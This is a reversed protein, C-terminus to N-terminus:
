SSNSFIIYKINEFYVQIENIVFHIQQCITFIPPKIKRTRRFTKQMHAWYEIKQCFYHIIGCLRIVIDWNLILHVLPCKLKSKNYWDFKIIWKMQNGANGNQPWGHILKGQTYIHNGLKINLLTQM